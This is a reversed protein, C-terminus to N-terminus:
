DIVGGKKKKKKKKMKRTIYLIFFHIAFMSETIMQNNMAAHEM